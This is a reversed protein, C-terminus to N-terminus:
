GNPRGERRHAEREVETVLQRLIVEGESIQEDRHGSVSAAEQLIRMLNFAGKYIEQSNFKWHSAWWYQCSYLAKDMQEDLDKNDLHRVKDLVLNTLRWQLQHISNDKSNWWSFYDGSQVDAQDTSWSGPPIFQSILPFRNYIDSLHATRLRDKSHSLAEFLEILFSEGLQPHHHGFTEGDLAIILYGDDTGMWAELSAGLERVFQDGHTWQGRYDAFRNTWMNSRLFVALGDFSYITNKPVEIGYYKLNGDDAITWKYGLSKFLSVLRGEFAMEPPFIGEPKYSDSLLRHMGADNLQIQRQVEQLPILPFVPHYAGTATLELSGRDHAERIDELIDSFPGSLLEVLSLNINMTFRLDPFAKIQRTLPRYSQEVVEALTQADQVPPQYIHFLFNVYKM